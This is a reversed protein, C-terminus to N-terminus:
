TEDVIHQVTETHKEKAARIFGVFLPAPDLPRSKFEPHSQTAIFYPHDALEIFEVLPTNNLTEHMGSVVLGAEKLTAIYKPNVEYRHRHRELVIPTMPPIAGLRVSDQAQDAMKQIRREDKALRGTEEYLMYTKSDHKLAAAYAGLRMTGGYQHSQLLKKQSELITIVPHPTKSDVETTNAQKIGAVNRAFEIVALQLGYCLGLYPINQERCYRIATIKGEIGSTGFGGPVIIGDVNNLLTVSSPDREFDKADIWIIQPKAGLAGCAHMIAQKVSIYSDELTFSGIDLYKGVIAIKLVLHSTEINTLMTKWSTWDPIRQQELQLRDLIRKGFHENEYHLPVAYISSVDPSSIINKKDVHAYTEIKKKRVDDLPKHARCFIFDPFIGFETLHKVAQQTPKTKPEGLHQPIPLYTVLVHMVNERGLERELSKATFLFIINEFDGVTGGIEVVAVDYGSSVDKLRRIIDNPIDPIPRVDRGLYEGRREREIVSLYVKGTTINHSRPIDIDLFREYNGLDQDIEGGDDTVWVEGHETPRMTGADINIYPDVKVPCVSYGYQQLIKGISASVVGKGVGSLVGGCVIVFKTAM